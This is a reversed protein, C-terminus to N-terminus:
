LTAVPNCAEQGGLLLRFLSAPLTPAMEAFWFLNGGSEIIGLLSPWPPSIMLIM